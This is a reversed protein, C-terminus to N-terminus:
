EPGYTRSAVVYKSKSKMKTKASNLGKKREETLKTINYNFLTILLRMDM